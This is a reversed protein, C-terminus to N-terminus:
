CHSCSISCLSGPVVKQHSVKVFKRAHGPHVRDDRTSTTVLIPPYEIDPNIDPISMLIFPIIGFLAFLTLFLLIAASRIILGEDSEITLWKCFFREM